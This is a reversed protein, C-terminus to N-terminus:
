ASDDGVLEPPWWRRVTQRDQGYWLGYRPAHHVGDLKLHEAGPLLALEAPVVSDGEVRGDTTLKEYRRRTRRSNAGDAASGAVSLYSVRGQHLTGPFM